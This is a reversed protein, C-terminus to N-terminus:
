MTVSRNGTGSIETRYNYMMEQTSWYADLKNKFDNVSFAHVVHAPVLSCKVFKSWIAIQDLFHSDNPGIPSKIANVM